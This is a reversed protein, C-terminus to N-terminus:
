NFLKAFLTTAALVSLIGALTTLQKDIAKYVCWRNGIQGGVFVILLIPWYNLTEHFNDFHHAKSILASLSNFFIFLTTTIAINKPIDIKWYTMLPSLFIGGGIGVIGSILGLMGGIVTYQFFSPVFTSLHLSHNNLLIRIGTLFLLIALISIFIKESLHITGGLYSLPISLLIWPIIKKWNVMKNKIFRLTSATVVILNCILALTPYTQYPLNMLAMLSLYSSGGGFGASSYIIAV